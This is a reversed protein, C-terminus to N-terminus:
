RTPSARACAPSARSTRIASASRSARSIATACPASRSHSCRRLWRSGRRRRRARHAAGGLRARPRSRPSRRRRRVARRAPLVLARDRPLSAAPLRGGALRAHRRRHERPLPPGGRAAREPDRARAGRRHVHLARRVAPLGPADAGDLAVLVDSTGQVYRTGYPGLVFRFAAYLGVAVAGALCALAAGHRYALPRRGLLRGAVFGGVGIGSLVVALLVSFTFANPEVFLRLLRFWVVEFALLLFGAVFSSAALLLARWTAGAGPAPRAPEPAVEGGLARQVALAVAAASLYLAAAALAAGRVGFWGVLFGESALAGLVAGMTNYGYLRGLVAGFNPDRESLAKVLIPLTAGMATAPVLLVGFSVALRLANLLWPQGLEAGLLPDLWRGLKPLLWVLPAGSLAVTTELLAYARVPRRIRAAFRVVITNGVALGAMFSSLVLASAWVSNGFALGAQRFWLSEFILAAAGSCFFVACLIPISFRKM